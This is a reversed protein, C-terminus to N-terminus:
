QQTDPIDVPLPSISSPPPTSFTVRSGQINEIPTFYFQMVNKDATELTASSSTTYKLKEIISERNQMERTEKSLIEESKPAPPTDSTMGTVITRKSEVEIDKADSVCSEIEQKMEHDSYNLTAGSAPTHKPVEGKSDADSSKTKKKSGEEIIRRVNVYRVPKYLRGIIPAGGAPLKIFFPSGRKWKDETQPVSVPQKTKSMLTFYIDREHEPYPVLKLPCETDFPRRVTVFYQTQLVSTKHIICCYQEETCQIYFTSAESVM